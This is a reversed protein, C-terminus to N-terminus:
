NTIEGDGRQIQLLVGQEAYVSGQMLERSSPNPDSCNCLSALSVFCDAHIPAPTHQAAQTSLAPLWSRRRCPLPSACETWQWFGAKDKVPSSLRWTNSALLKWLGMLWGEPASRHLHNLLQCRHPHANSVASVRSDCTVSQLIGATSSDNLWTQTAQKGSTFHWQTVSPWVPRWLKQWITSPLMNSTQYCLWNQTHERVLTLNQTIFVTIRQEVELFSSCSGCTIFQAPPSPHLWPILDQPPVERKKDNFTRHSHTAQILHETHPLFPSRSPSNRYLKKYLLSFLVVIYTYYLIGYQAIGM